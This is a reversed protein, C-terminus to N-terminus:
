IYDLKHVIAYISLFHWSRALSALFGHRIALGMGAGFVLFGESWERMAWSESSSGWAKNMGSIVLKASVM